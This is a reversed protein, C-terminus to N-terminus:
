SKKFDKGKWRKEGSTKWGRTNPGQIMKQDFDVVSKEPREKLEVGFINEAKLTTKNTSAIQLDTAPISIFIHGKDNILSKLNKSNCFAYFPKRM